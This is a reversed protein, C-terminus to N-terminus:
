DTIFLLPAPGLPTQPFPSFVRKIIPSRNQTEAIGHSFCVARATREETKKKRKKTTFQPVFATERTTTTTTVTVDRADNDCADNKLSGPSKDLL